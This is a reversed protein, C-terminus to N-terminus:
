KPLGFLGTFRASSCRLGDDFVVIQTLGQQQGALHMADQMALNVTDCNYCSQLGLTKMERLIEHSERGRELSQLGGIFWTDILDQMPMVLDAVTKDVLASFM